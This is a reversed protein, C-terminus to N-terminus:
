WKRSLALKGHIWVVVPAGSSNGANEFIKEPVIVDLFLCDETEGPVTTVNASGTTVTTSVNPVVGTLLYQPLWQAAILTWAPNAQHCIRLESGDQVSSRDTTPSVPARFRLDAVPPAAYRINSFNYYAATEKIGCM